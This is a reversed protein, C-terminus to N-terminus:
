LELVMGQWGPNIVLCRGIRDRVGAGEHIHGCVCAIPKFREIFARISKSGAHEGAVIDLATKYPPAHCLLVLKQVSKLKEAKAAAYLELEADIASFGNGGWGFFTLGALRHLKAHIFKINTSRACLSGMSEANEHNGHVVLVPKGLGDLSRLVVELGREFM